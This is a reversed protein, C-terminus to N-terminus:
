CVLVGSPDEGPGDAVRSWAESLRELESDREVLPTSSSRVAPGRREGLVRFPQLPDTVGKVVQPDGAEIEFRDDILERVGDSVVVTGPAAIAQLRAGVNAALGYVDDEDYDVYLPGRHVAVRVDLPEAASGGVRHLDRVARVLALGSRVAREADNEHAIPFGFVALIGDGKHQVIHGEFRTEIVDRCVSRYGRMLERYTEPEWRGSLETSGVLDCYMITLRRLEGVRARLEAGDM